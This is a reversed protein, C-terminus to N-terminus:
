QWIALDACIVGADGQKLVHMGCIVVTRTDTDSDYITATVKRRQVYTRMYLRLHSLRRQGLVHVSEIAVMVEALLIAEGDADACAEGIGLVVREHVEEVDGLAVPVVGVEVGDLCPTVCM